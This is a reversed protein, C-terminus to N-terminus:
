NRVKTAKISLEQSGDPQTELLLTDLRYGDRDHEQRVAKALDRGSADPANIFNLIGAGLRANLRLQGKQAFVIYLSNNDDAAGIKIDGDEIQLDPEILIDNQIM